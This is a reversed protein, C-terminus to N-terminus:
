VTFNLLVKKGKISHEVAESIANLSYTAAIPVNISGSAIFSDAERVAADLKPLYESLYM